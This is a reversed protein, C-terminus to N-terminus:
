ASPTPPPSPQVPKVQEVTDLLQDLRFPKYLFLQVGAQRAKVISHGPDWGFGTMLVMPVASLVTQLRVLLDYGTMDPLRIDALIAEYIGSRVMSVAEGGDRATEVICGYRELLSHAHKRVSEDPDVVLVRRDRLKPRADYDSPLPLAQTPAMTRGVKQIVEKIDRANSLIRRLREVVKPEHGIYREMVNVTDNLIEDVPLAVASHIAEVNKAIANAQEAVLLELTHLASAVDRAFVELCQLDSECFSGREPSEVNFTGIVEDNFILPVTMSSKAGTAGVLYLPDVATDECLYSKGTAAVFGTVGNAQPLCFLERHASEPHMGIALLPDLRGSERNLLRIELIDFHLLDQASYLVNSKLLDIRDAVTMSALVDPMLNALEMGAQHIAVLKQQQQKERSVDRLVLLLYQAPGSMSDNVPTAHVQFFRNERCGLTSTTSKGTLFATQFPCYDPGMIKPNGLTEYFNAGNVTEKSSWQCIRDNGWLITNNSDLLIVGDPMEELIWANQLLKGVEVAKQLHAGDVYVGAFEESNLLTLGRIMGLVTVPEFADGLAAVMGQSSQASSGVILVKPKATLM